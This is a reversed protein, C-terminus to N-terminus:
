RKMAFKVFRIGRIDMFEDSIDFGMWRIWRHTLEYRVPVWNWLTTYRAPVVEQLQEKWVRLFARDIEEIKYSGLMWVIATSDDEPCYGAIAAVEDDIEITRMLPGLDHYFPRIMIDLPAMGFALCEIIDWPRLRPALFKADDPTSLRLRTNGWKGVGPVTVPPSGDM